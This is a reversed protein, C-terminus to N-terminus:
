NKSKEQTSQDENPNDGEKSADVVIRKMMFIGEARSIIALEEDTIINRPRRVEFYGEGDSEKEGIINKLGKVKIYLGSDVWSGMKSDRVFHGSLYDFPIIGHIFLHAIDKGILSGEVNYPSNIGVLEEVTFLQYKENKDDQDGNM